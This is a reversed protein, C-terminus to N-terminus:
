GQWSGIFFKCQPSDDNVETWRGTQRIQRYVHLHLDPCEGRLSEPQQQTDLTSSLVLQSDWASISRPIRDSVFSMLLQGTVAVTDLKLYLGGGGGTYSCHVGTTHPLISSRGKMTDTLHFWTWLGTQCCRLKMWDCTETDAPNRLVTEGLDMEQCMIWISVFNATTKSCVGCDGWVDTQVPHPKERWWLSLKNLPRKVQVIESLEKIVKKLFHSILVHALDEIWSLETM